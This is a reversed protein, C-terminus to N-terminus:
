PINEDTLDDLGDCGREPTQDCYKGTRCPSKNCTERLDLVFLFCCLEVGAALCGGLLM